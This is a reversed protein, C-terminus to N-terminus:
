QGEGLCLGNTMTGSAAACRDLQQQREFFVGALFALGLLVLTRIPRLM